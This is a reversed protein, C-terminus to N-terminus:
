SDGEALADQLRGPEDVRALMELAEELGLAQAYGAVLKILGAKLTSYADVGGM